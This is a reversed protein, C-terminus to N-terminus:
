PTTLAILITGGAARIAPWTLLAVLLVFAALTLKMSFPLAAPLAKRVARWGAPVLLAPPAFWVVAHTACVTPFCLIALINVVMWVRMAHDLPFPDATQVSDGNMRGGVWLGLLGLGLLPAALDAIEAGFRWVAAPGVRSLPEPVAVAVWPPRGDMWGALGVLAFGLVVGAGLRVTRRATSCSADMRRAASLGGAAAGVLLPSLAMAAGLIVGAPTLARPRSILLGMGLAALSVAFLDAAHILHEAALGACVVGMVVISGAPGPDPQKRFIWAHVLLMLAGAVILDPGASPYLLQSALAPDSTRAVAVLSGMTWTLALLLAIGFAPRCQPKPVVSASASAPDNM